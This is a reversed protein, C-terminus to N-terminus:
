SRLQHTLKTNVACAADGVIAAMLILVDYDKSILRIRDLDRIDANIFDVDKLFRSEYLLNDYVTVDIGNQLLTDVTLGGIYGAGGIVLAKM